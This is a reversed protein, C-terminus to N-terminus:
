SKVEIGLVTKGTLKQRAPPAHKVKVGLVQRGKTVDALMTEWTAQRPTQRKARKFTALTQRLSDNLKRLEVARTPSYSKTNLLTIEGSRSVRFTVTQGDPLTTQYEGPKPTDPTEEQQVMDGLQVQTMADLDDFNIKTAM